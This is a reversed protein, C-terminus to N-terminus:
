WFLHKLSWGRRQGGEDTARVQYTELRDLYCLFTHRYQCLSVQDVSLEEVNEMEQLVEELREEQIEEADDGGTERNHGEMAERPGSGEREENDAESRSSVIKLDAL